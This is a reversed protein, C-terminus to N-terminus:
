PNSKLIGIYMAYAYTCQIHMPVNYICIYMTYAYTCQMRMPVYITFQM